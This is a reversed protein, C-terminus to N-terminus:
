IAVKMSEEGCQLIYIGQPLNIITSGNVRRKELQIGNIDYIKIESNDADILLRGNVIEINQINALPGDVVLPFQNTEEIHIFRNWFASLAYRKKTGELVLLQATNETSTDFTNITIVAPWESHAYVKMLKPCNSFARSAITQIESEIEVWEMSICGEFAGEGIESIGKLYVWPLTTLNEFAGEEIVVDNDKNFDVKKIATCGSFARVGILAVEDGFYLYDLSSCSSFAREGITKLNDPFTVSGLSSCNYFSYPPMEEMNKNLTLTFLGSCNSFVNEGLKGNFASLDVDSIGSCNSFAGDAIERLNSNFSFHRLSSCFAFASNGIVSLTLPCVFDSLSKCNAFAREGIEATSSPLSVSKLGACEYAMYPPVVKIAGEIKITELNNSFSFAHSAIETINRPVKVSKLSGCQQFAGESISSPIYQKGGYTVTEPINIDGTYEGEPLRVVAVRGASNDLIDYAIGGVIFDAASLDAGGWGAAAINIFLFSLGKYIKKLDM